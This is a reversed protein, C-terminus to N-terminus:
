SILGRAPVLADPWCGRPWRSGSVGRGGDFIGLRGPAPAAGEWVGRLAAGEWVGAARRGGVGGCRPTDPGARVPAYANPHNQAPLQDQPWLPV